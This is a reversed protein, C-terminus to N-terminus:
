WRGRTLRSGASISALATQHNTAEDDRLHQPPPRRERPAPSAPEYPPAEPPLRQRPACALQDVALALAVVSLIRPRALRRRRRERRRGLTWSLEHYPLSGSFSAGFLAIALIVLLAQTMCAATAVPTGVPPGM